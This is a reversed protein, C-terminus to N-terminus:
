KKPARYKEHCGKCGAGLKGLTPMVGAASTVKSMNDAAAIATKLAASFGAPDSWIEAKARTEYGSDPGTNKPFLHASKELNAKITLAAKKVAAADFAIKGKATGVLVKMGGGVAKMAEQREKIKKVHAAGHVSVSTIAVAGLLAAAVVVPKRVLNKVTM